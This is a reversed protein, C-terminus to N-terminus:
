FGIKGLVRGIDFCVRWVWLAGVVCFVLLIGECLCREEWVEVGLCACILEWGVRPGGSVRVV